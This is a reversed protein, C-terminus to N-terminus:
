FQVPVGRLGDGLRQCKTIVEANIAALTESGYIGPERQGTLNINPGHILLM